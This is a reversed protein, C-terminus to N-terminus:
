LTIKICWQNKLDRFLKGLNAPARGLVKNAISKVTQAIKGSKAERTIDNHLKIPIKIPLKIQKAKSVTQNSITLQEYLVDYM